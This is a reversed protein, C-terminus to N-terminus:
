KGISADRYVINFLNHNTDVIWEPTMLPGYGWGSDRPDDPCGPLPMAFTVLEAIGVCERAIMFAVGKFAGYTVAAIGGEEQNVDYIKIPVELGGLLINSTARGLKRAPDGAFSDASAFLVVAVVIVMLAKNLLRM